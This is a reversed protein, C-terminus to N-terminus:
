MELDETPPFILLNNEPWNVIGWSINQPGEAYRKAVAFHCPFTRFWYKKKIHLSSTFIVSNM